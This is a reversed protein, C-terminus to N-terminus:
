KCVAKPNITQCSNNNCKLSDYKIEFDQCGLKEQLEMGDGLGEYTGPGCGWPIFFQHYPNYAGINCLNSRFQCDSDQQCYKPNALYSGLNNDSTLKIKVGSSEYLGDKLQTNDTSLFYKQNFFDGKPYNPGGIGTNASKTAETYFSYKYKNISNKPNLIAAVTSTFDMFNDTVLSSTLEMIFAKKGLSDTSPTSPINSSTPLPSSTPQVEEAQKIEPQNKNALLYYAFLSATLVFLGAFLIAWYNLRSKPPVPAPQDQLVVPVTNEQNEM